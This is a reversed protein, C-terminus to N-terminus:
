VAFGHKEVSTCIELEKEQTDDHVMMQNHHDSERTEHKTCKGIQSSEPRTERHIIRLVLLKPHNYTDKTSTTKLLLLITSTITDSLNKDDSEKQHVLLFGVTTMGLYVLGVRLVYLM